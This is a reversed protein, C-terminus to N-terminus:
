DIYNKKSWAMELYVITRTFFLFDNKVSDHKVITHITFYQYLTLIFRMYFLTIIILMHVRTDLSISKHAVRIKLGHM